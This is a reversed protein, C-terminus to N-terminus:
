DKGMFTRREPRRFRVVVKVAQPRAGIGCAVDHAQGQEPLQIGATWESMISAGGVLSLGALWFYRTHPNHALRTKAIQKAEPSCLGINEADPLSEPM